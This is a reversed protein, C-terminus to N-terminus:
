SLLPNSKEPDIELDRIAQTVIDSKIKGSRALGYLTALTIYRADVEFFDRLHQRGDSRGFGDTGLTFLPGPLWRSISEPLAKVYDTAAVFIGKAGQLATELYAVKPTQDPHLMNWRETALADNLLEKYSTVSWVDAAVQYKEALIQQAQIVENLIAGSGFLHVRLKSAPQAAAKFRYIGKIIGERVDAPMAPQPYNENMVTLYYFGNDQLEYMRHIGERIIVALEYAFAPDYARLTPYPYAL